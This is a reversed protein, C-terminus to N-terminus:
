VVLPAQCSEVPTPLALSVCQIALPAVEEVAVQFKIPKGGPCYRRAAVQGAERSYAVSAGKETCLPLWFSPVTRTLWCRAAAVKESAPALQCFRPVNVIVPLVSITFSLPEVVPRTTASAM